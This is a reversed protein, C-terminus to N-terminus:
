NTGTDATANPKEQQEKLQSQLKNILTAVQRFPMEGLAESLVILEQETITFTFTKM